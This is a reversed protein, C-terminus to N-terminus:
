LVASRGGLHERVQSRDVFFDHPKSIAGVRRRGSSPSPVRVDSRTSKSPVNALEGPHNGSLSCLGVSRFQSQLVELTYLGGQGFEDGFMALCSTAVDLFESADHQVALLYVDDRFSLVVVRHLGLSVVHESTNGEDM